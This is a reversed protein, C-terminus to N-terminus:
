LASRYTTNSGSGTVRSLSFLAQKIYSTPKAPSYVRRQAARVRRKLIMVSFGPRQIGGPWGGGGKGDRNLQRGTLDTICYTFFIRLFDWNPFFDAIGFYLTICPCISDVLSSKPLYEDSRKIYQVLFIHVLMLKFSSM